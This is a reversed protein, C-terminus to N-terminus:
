ESWSRNLDVATGRIAHERAGWDLLRIPRIKVACPYDAAFSAVTRGDTALVEAYKSAFRESPLTGASSDRDGDVVRAEGDILEVEFAPETGGIALMVASHSRINRAKQADPRTFVTIVEGDWDFWTPVVHPRGDPRVSSLWIVRASALLEHLRILSRVLATTGPPGISISGDGHAVSSSTSRDFDVM